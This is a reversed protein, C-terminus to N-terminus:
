EANILCLTVIGDSQDVYNTIYPAFKGFLTPNLNKSLAFGFDNTMKGEARVLTSTTTAENM